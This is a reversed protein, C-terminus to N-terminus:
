STRKIQTPTSASDTEFSMAVTSDDIKLSDPTTTNVNVISKLLSWIMYLLQTISATSGQTAYVETQATNIMENVTPAAAVMDTNTTTIDVLTTNACLNVKTLDGDSEIGLSSFNTPVNAALLANDTGVMDTNTTTTDVLTTNACLNVKTMDGDSEIGLDAFYNPTTVHNGPVGVVQIDLTSSEPYIALDDANTESQTLDFLYYGDETETPNTDTIAGAAGYDLSIKATIQAADGTKPTNDTTDFAFVRWKQNAVNKKM